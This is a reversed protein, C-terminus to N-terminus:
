PIQLFDPLQYIDTFTVSEHQQQNMQLQTSISQNHATYIAIQAQTRVLEQQEREIQQHLRSVIGVSGYVPDQIRWYADQFISNAAEAREHISIQQLFVFCM